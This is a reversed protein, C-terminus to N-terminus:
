PYKVVAGKTGTVRNVGPLLKAANQKNIEPGVRVRYMKKGKLDILEPDMTDFGAKRLQRVLKEANDKSSFSGVQIVWATIGQRPQIPKSETTTEKVPAMEPVPKTEPSVPKPDPASKATLDVPVPKPIENRILESKFKNTPPQPITAGEKNEAI